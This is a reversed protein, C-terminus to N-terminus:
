AQSLTCAATTISHSAPSDDTPASVWTIAPAPRLPYMLGLALAWTDPGVGPCEVPLVLFPEVAQQRSGAAAATEAAKSASSAQDPASGSGGRGEQDRHVAVDLIGDAAASLRADLASPRSLQGPPRLHGAHPQGVAPLVGAAAVGAPAICAAEVAPPPAAAAEYAEAAAAGGTAVERVERALRDSWLALVQTHALMGVTTPAQPATAGCSSHAAKKDQRQQRPTRASSSGPTNFNDIGSSNRSSITGLVTHLAHSTVAMAGGAATALTRWPWTALGLPLALARTAQHLLYTCSSSRPQSSAAGYHWHPAADAATSTADLLRAAAVAVAAPLQAITALGAPAGAAGAQGQQQDCAGVLLM